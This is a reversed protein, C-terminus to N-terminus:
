KIAMGGEKKKRQSLDIHLDYFSVIYILSVEFMYATRRRGEIIRPCVGM